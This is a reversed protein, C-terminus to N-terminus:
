TIAAMFEITIRARRYVSFAGISKPMQHYLAKFMPVTDHDVANGARDQCDEQAKRSMCDGGFPLVGTLLGRRKGIV